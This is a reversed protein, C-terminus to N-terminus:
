ISMPMLLYEVEPIAPDKYSYRTFLIPFRPNLTSIDWTGAPPLLLGDVCIRSPSLGQPLAETKGSSMVWGGDTVEPIFMPVHGHWYGDAGKGLNPVFVGKVTKDFISKQPFVRAHDPFGLAAPSQRKDLILDFGDPYGTEPKWDSTKPALHKVLFYMGDPEACFNHIKAFRRSDTILGMGGLVRIRRKSDNDASAIINASM